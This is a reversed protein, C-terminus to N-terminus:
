VRLVGVRQALLPVVKPGCSIYQLPYKIQFTGNPFDDLLFVSAKRVFNEIVQLCAKGFAVEKPNQHVYEVLSSLM